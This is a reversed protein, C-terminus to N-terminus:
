PFRLDVLGNASTESIGRFQRRYSQGWQRRMKARIEECFRFLKARPRVPSVERQLFARPPTQPDNECWRRSLM